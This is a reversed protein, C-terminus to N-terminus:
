DVLAGVVEEFDDKSVESEVLKLVWFDVGSEWVMLLVRIEGESAKM